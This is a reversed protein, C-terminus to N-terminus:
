DADCNIARHGKALCLHCYDHDYPCRTGKKCGETDYNHYRCIPQTPDIPSYVLPAQLPHRSTKGRMADTVKRAFWVSGNAIIGNLAGISLDEAIKVSQELEKVVERSKIVIMRLNSFSKFVWSIMEIVGKEERNGGIDVFVVSPGMSGSFKKAVELAGSPNSLADMRCAHWLKSRNQLAATLRSSCKEVMETSTDFGVLSRGYRTLLVSAEGTSCGIELIDDEDYIQSCALHRYPTTEKTFVISLAAQHGVKDSVVPILRKCSVQKPTQRGSFQVWAHGESAPLQEM